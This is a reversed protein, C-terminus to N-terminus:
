SADNPVAMFGAVFEDFLAFVLRAQELSDFYVMEGAVTRGMWLRTENKVVGDWSVASDSANFTFSAGDLTITKSLSKSNSVVSSSSNIIVCGHSM